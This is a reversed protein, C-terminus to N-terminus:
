AFIDIRATGVEDDVAAVDGEVAQGTGAIEIEGLRQVIRQGDGAAIQGAIM